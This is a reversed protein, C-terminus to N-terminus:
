GVSWLSPQQVRVPKSIADEKSWNSYYFRKYVVDYSLGNAKATAFDDENLFEYM